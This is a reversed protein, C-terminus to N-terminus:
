NLELPDVDINWRLKHPSPQEDLWYTLAYLMKHLAKRNETYFHLQHHFRKARKEITAPIPGLHLIDLQNSELWQHMHHRVQSLWNEAIEPAPADARLIAMYSYPPLKLEKRQILLSQAFTNYGQNALCELMPHDNFMTQM